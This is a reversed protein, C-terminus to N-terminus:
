RFKKQVSRAADQVGAVVAEFSEGLDELTDKSDAIKTKLQKQLKRGPMPAFLLALAAGVAAGAIFMASYAGVHTEKRGFM